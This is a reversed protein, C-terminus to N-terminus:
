DDNDVAIFIRSQQNQAANIVIDRWERSFYQQVFVDLELRPTMLYDM